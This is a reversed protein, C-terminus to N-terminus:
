IPTCIPNSIKIQVQKSEVIKLNLAGSNKKIRFKLFIYSLQYGYQYKSTGFKFCMLNELKFYM